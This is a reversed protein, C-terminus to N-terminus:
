ESCQKYIAESNPITEGNSLTLVSDPYGIYAYTREDENPYATESWDIEQCLNFHLNPLNSTPDNYPVDAKM